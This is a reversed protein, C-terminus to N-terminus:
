TTCQRRSHVRSLNTNRRKYRPCDNSNDPPNVSNNSSNFKHNGSWSTQVVNLLILTLGVILCPIIKIVTDVNM